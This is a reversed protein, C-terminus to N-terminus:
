LGLNGGLSTMLNELDYVFSEFSEKILLSSYVLSLALLKKYSFNNQFCIVPSASKGAHSKSLVLFTRHM